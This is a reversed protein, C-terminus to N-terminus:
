EIEVVLALRCAHRCVAACNGRGAANIAERNEPRRIASSVEYANALPRENSVLGSSYAAM